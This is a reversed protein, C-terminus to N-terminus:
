LLIYVYRVKWFPKESTISTLFYIIISICTGNHQYTKLKRWKLLSICWYNGDQLLYNYM